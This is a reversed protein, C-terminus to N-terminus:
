SNNIPLGDTIGCLECWWTLVMIRFCHWLSLFDAILVFIGVFRLYKSLFM